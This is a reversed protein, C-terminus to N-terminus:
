KRVEGAKTSKLLNGLAIRKFYARDSEGKEIEPVERNSVATVGEPSISTAKEKIGAREDQRGLEYARQAMDDYDLVKHLHERTAKVKGKLLDGTLIDVAQSDYNAYKGKLTEDEKAKLLQAQTNLLQTNQSKMDNLLKKDAESLASYDDQQVGAVQQAAKVFEENKLLGQVKETTWNSPETMKTEYEKRLTALDQFKQNFGRQFSKYAKEAYERAKPDEIKEIDTVNFDTKEPEKIEVKSVKTVLDEKPPEKTIVEEKKEVEVGETTRKIKVDGSDINTKLEM